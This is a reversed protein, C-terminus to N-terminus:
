GPYRDWEDETVDFPVGSFHRYLDDAVTEVVKRLKLADALGAPLEDPGRMAGCLQGVTAGVRSAPGGVLVAVGIADDLREICGVLYLSVGLVARAHSPDPGGFALVEAAREPTPDGLDATDLAHDVVAQLEAAEDDDPLRSLGSAVADAMPEGVLLKQLICAYLGAAYCPEPHSHTLAAIDSAVQYPTWSSLATAAVRPLVSADRWNNIPRELSGRLGSRLARLTGLDRSAPRYLEPVSALWGDARPPPSRQTQTSMWRLMAAYVMSTADSPQGVAHRHHSRILGEAVFLVLQTVDTHGGLSGDVPLLHRLARVGHADTPVSARAQEPTKGDLPAGLADGAAGGLLVGLYRQRLQAM